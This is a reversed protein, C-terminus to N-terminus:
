GEGLWSKERGRESPIRTTKTTAGACHRSDRQINKTKADDHGDVASNYYYRNKVPRKEGITILARM